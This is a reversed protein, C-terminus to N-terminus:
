VFELLFDGISVQSGCEILVPAVLDVGNLKTGNTSNLDEIMWKGDCAFLRAHLKSAHVDDILVACESGRGITVDGEVLFTQGSFESPSLM